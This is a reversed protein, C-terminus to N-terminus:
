EEPWLVRMQGQHLKARRRYFLFSGAPRSRFARGWTCTFCPCDVAPPAPAGNREIQLYYAVLGDFALKARDTPPPLPMAVEVRFVFLAFLAQSAGVIM